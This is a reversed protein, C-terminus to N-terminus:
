GNQRGTNLRNMVTIAASGRIGMKDMLMRILDSDVTGLLLCIVTYIVLGLVTIASIALVSQWGDIAPFFLTGVYVIVAMPIVALFCRWLTRLLQNQVEPIGLSVLYRQILFIELFVDSAMAGAAGNDLFRQGLYTGVVCGLPGLFCALFSANMMSKQGNAAVVITGVATAIYYLLSAVGGWQIVAICGTFSPPYHLIWLMYGPLLMLICSLPMGIIILLTTIRESLRLFGPRDSYFLRTLTPQVSGMIATPIFLSTGVLRFALAYWGVEAQKVMAQLVLPDTYGYLIRFVNWGLFPWGEHIMVKARRITTEWEERTFRVTASLLDKRLLYARLALGVLTCIGAGAFMWLPAHFFVLLLTIATTLFRDALNAGYLLPLRERGALAAGFLDNITDVIGVIATVLVLLRVEPTPNWFRVFLTAVIVALVSLPLRILLATRLLEGTRSNDKVVDRILVSSTGLPVAVMCIAAFSGAFTLQGLGVDGLYRPMVLTVAFTLAWSLLQTILAVAVNRGVRPKEEVTESM